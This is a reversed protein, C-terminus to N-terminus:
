FRGFEDWMTVIRKYWGPTWSKMEDLSMDNKISNVRATCLVVNGYVYGVSPIIKDVSLRDNLSVHRWKLERDTYFCAGHQRDYISRLQEETLTFPIQKLACSRRIEMWRSHLYKELSDTVRQYMQKNRCRNCTGLRYEYKQGKRNVSFQTEFIEEQCHTCRVKGDVVIPRNRRPTLGLRKIATNVTGKSVKLTEAIKRNSLGDAHLRAVEELSVGLPKHCKRCASRSRVAHSHSINNAYTRIVGCIPCALFYESSTKM